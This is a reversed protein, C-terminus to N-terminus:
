SSQSCIIIYHFRMTHTKCVVCCPLGFVISCVHPRCTHKSFPKPIKVLVNFQM